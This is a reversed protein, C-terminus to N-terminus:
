CKENLKDNLADIITQVLGAALKITISKGYTTTLVCRLAHVDCKTEVIKKAIISDVTGMLDFYWTAAEGDALTIPLPCDQSNVRLYQADTGKRRKAFKRQVRRIRISNITVTRYGANNASVTLLPETSEPPFEPDDHCCGTVKIKRMGRALCVAVVAAAFSGIGSFWEAATGWQCDVIMAMVWQM